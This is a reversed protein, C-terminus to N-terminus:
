ANSLDCKYTGDPLDKLRIRARRKTGKFIFDKVPKGGASYITFKAPKNKYPIAMRIRMVNKNVEEPMKVIAPEILNADARKRIWRLLLFLLLLALLGGGILLAHERALAQWDFAPSAPLSAPDIMRYGAMGDEVFVHPLKLSLQISRLSTDPQPAPSLYTLEYMLQRPRLLQEFFDTLAEPSEALLYQGGSNQALQLLLSDPQPELQALYIPIQLHTLLQLLSDPTHTSAGSEGTTLVLLSTQGTPYYQLVQLAQLMADYLASGGEASIADFVKPLQATNGDMETNVDVEGAFAMLMVSDHRPQLGALWQMLALKAAQLRSPLGATDEAAPDAFARGMAAGHDLLAISYSPPTLSQAELQQLNVEQGDERVEFHSPELTLPASGAPTNVEVRLRIEPFASTDVEVLRASALAESEVVAAQQARAQTGLLLAGVCLLVLRIYDNM